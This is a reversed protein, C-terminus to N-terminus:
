IHGEREGEVIRETVVQVLRFLDVVSVHSIGQGVHSHRKQMEKHTILEWEREHWLYEKQELPIPMSNEVANAWARLTPEHLTKVAAGIAEVTFGHITMDRALALKVVDFMSFVRIRRRQTGVFRSPRLGAAKALAFNKVRWEEILLIKAVEGTGFARNDWPPNGM